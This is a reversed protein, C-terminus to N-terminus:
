LFCSEPVPCPWVQRGISTISVRSDLTLPEWWDIHLSGELVLRLVSQVAIGPTERFTHLRTEPTKSFARRIREREAAPIEVSRYRLILGANALRPEACIESRKWLRFYYSHESLLERILTFRARNEPLDADADEKVEVVHRDSGWAVLVDPTYFHKKGEYHYELVFPQEQWGDAHATAL